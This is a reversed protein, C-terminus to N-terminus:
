NSWSAENSRQRNEWAKASENTRVADLAAQSNAVPETGIKGLLTKVAIAAEQINLLRPSKIEAKVIINPFAAGSANNQSIDFGLEALSANFIPLYGDSDENPYTSWQIPQGAGVVYVTCAYGYVEQAVNSNTIKAVAQKTLKRPLCVVREITPPMAVQQSLLQERLRGNEIMAGTSNSTNRHTNIYALSLGAVVGFGVGLGIAVFFRKSKFFNM